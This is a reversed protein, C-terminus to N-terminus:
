EPADSLRRQERLYLALGHGADNVKQAFGYRVSMVDGPEPGQLEVVVVSADSQLGKGLAKAIPDRRDIMHMYKPGSPFTYAAGGFTDVSLGSLMRTQEAPSVGERTLTVKLASVANSIILAGQSHGVLRVQEGQSLRAHLQNHLTVAAPGLVGLKDSASDLLDVVLGRSTNVVGVIQGAYTNVVHPLESLQREPHTLMGPVMFVIEDASGRQGLGRLKPLESDATTAPYVRSGGILAGQVLRARAGIFEQPVRLAAPRAASVDYPQQSCSDSAEAPRAGVMALATLAGTLPRRMLRLLGEQIARTGAGHNESPEAAYRRVHIQSVRM